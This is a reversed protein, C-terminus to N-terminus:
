GLHFTVYVSITKLSFRMNINEMNFVDHQGPFIAEPFCACIQQINDFLTHVQRDWVKGSVELYYWTTQVNDHTIEYPFRRIKHLTQSSSRICSRKLNISYKGFSCSKLVKIVYFFSNCTDTKHSVYMQKSLATNLARYFM